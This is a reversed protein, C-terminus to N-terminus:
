QCTCLQALPRFNFIFPPLLVARKNFRRTNNYQSKARRKIWTSSSTSHGSNKTQQGFMFSIQDLQLFSERSSTSYSMQPSRSISFRYFENRRSNVKVCHSNFHARYIQRSGNGPGFEWTGVFRSERPKHPWCDLFSVMGNRSEAVRKRWPQISILIGVDKERTREKTSCSRIGKRTSKWPYSVTCDLNYEEEYTQKNLYITRDEAQHREEDKTFLPRLVVHSCLEIWGEM